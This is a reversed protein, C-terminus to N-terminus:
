RSVGEHDHAHGVMEAVHSIGRAELEATLETLIRQPARPDHLMSTGVQVATAGAALMALADHGSRVGGCGVVAVEPLTRHVEWVCRLAVAHVAPGGLSGPGGGLAPRLTAPDLVLGPLGHGVVVADAGAKAAARAVDVATHPDAAIKVLVPVGRPMDQRVASVVKGAQYSDRAARSGPPWSLNVEVGGVGPSTGVRRALEAWSGLSDGAISVVTRVHRQALWPLETALFTQLGPPRPTTDALLGSPTEVAQPPAVEPQPDLTVSRSVFGGLDALDLFAAVERGTGACGSATLVPNAFTAEGLRVSLGTTM